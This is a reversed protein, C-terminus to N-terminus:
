FLLTSEEVLKKGEDDMIKLIDNINYVRAGDDLFQQVELNPGIKTFGFKDWSENKM